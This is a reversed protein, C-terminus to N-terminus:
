KKGVKRRQLERECQRVSYNMAAILQGVIAPNEYNDYQALRNRTETIGSARVKLADENIRTIPAQTRSTFNHRVTLM